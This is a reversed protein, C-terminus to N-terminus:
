SSGLFSFHSTLLLNGFWNRSIFCFLFSNSLLYSVLGCVATAPVFCVIVVSVLLVICLFSILLGSGFVIWFGSELRPSFRRPGSPLNAVCVSVESVVVTSSSSSSSFSLSEPSSWVLECAASTDISLTSAFKSIVEGFCSPRPLFFGLGLVGPLDFRLSCTSTMVSSCSSCAICVILSFGVVVVITSLVPLWFLIFISVLIISFPIGSLGFIIVLGLFSSWRSYPGIIWYYSKTVRYCM